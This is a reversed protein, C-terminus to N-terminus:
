NFQLISNFKKTDLYNSNINYQTPYFKNESTEVYCKNELDKLKKKEDNLNIEKKIKKKIKLNMIIGIFSLILIIINIILHIIIRITVGNNCYDKLSDNYMYCYINVFLDINKETIYALIYIIFISINLIFFVFSLIINILNLIKKEKPEIFKYYYNFLLGLSFLFYIINLIIRILNLKYEWGNEKQKYYFSIDDEYERIKFGKLITMEKYFNSFKIKNVFSLNQNKFSNINKVLLNLKKIYDEEEEEYNQCFSYNLIYRKNNSVKFYFTFTSLFISFFLSITIYSFINLKM